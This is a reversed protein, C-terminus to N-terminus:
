WTTLLFVKPEPKGNEELVKQMDEHFQIMKLQTEDSDPDYSAIKIDVTGDEKFEPIIECNFNKKSQLIRETASNEDKMRRALNPDNKRAEIDYETVNPAEM